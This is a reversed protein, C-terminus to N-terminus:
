NLLLQLLRLEKELQEYADEAEEISVFEFTISQKPPLQALRHLDASIVQGIKPYGGTTQRDAMLIIPEGNPPMQITGFTVAESVLQFPEKIEIPTNPIMRYGMRDAELSIEFSNTAFQQQVDETFRSWETGKLVRIPKNLYFPEPQVQYNQKIWETPLYELTDNVKLARGELGGIGAKLYTSASDMILPVQIGDKVCLYTRVGNTIPGCALVDGAALNMVKNMLIPEGNVKAQVHGGTLVISTPKTFEFTGGILTMEIAAKNEQKLLANGIRFAVRDMVGSVIVGFQQYGTRGEDQITSFFGPKKVVIM